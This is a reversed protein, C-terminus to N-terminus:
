IRQERGSLFIVKKSSVEPAEAKEASSALSWFSHNNKGKNTYPKEYKLLM